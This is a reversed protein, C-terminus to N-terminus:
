EKQKLFKVFQIVDRKQADTLDKVEGYLAFDIDALQQDLASGVPTRQETKGLLYDASVHFYQSIRHLAEGRPTYGSKKWNTVNSRNIGCDAAARGPKVGAEECLMVFKEYFTM